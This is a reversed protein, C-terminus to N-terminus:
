WIGFVVADRLRLPLPRRRLQSLAQMKWSEFAELEQATLTHQSFKAKQALANLNRPPKKGLRASLRCVQRWRELARANADGRNWRVEDLRARLIGQGMLACLGLVCWAAGALWRPMERSAQESPQPQEPTREPTQVQQAPSTQAPESETPQRTAEAAGTNEQQAPTEASATLDAPTTELIVWANKATSYYEVWAHSNAEPVEVTKDAVCQAMYGTVYRAPVGAARLLVVTATAFHVCYGTDSDELFWRAFDTEDAPMRETNLDYRASSRVYDAIAVIDTQDATRDALIRKVLRRAWVGTSEPLQLYPQLDAVATAQDTLSYTYERVNGNALSGATLTVAEAPYYPVYRVNNRGRTKITITGGAQGGGFQESRGESASWGNGSYLDYDRGRLYILGSQSATVEMATYNWNKRPGQNSLQVDPTQETGPPTGDGEMTGVLEQFWSVLLDEYVQAQNVYGKQPVLLFLLALAAAVPLVAYATLRVGQERNKRRVHDTLLLMALSLMVLYLWITGPVTDTVVLCAGLPLVMAPVAVLAPKRRMVTWSVSLATLCGICALALDAKTGGYGKLLVTGWGYATDYRASIMRLLVEVQAWFRDTHGLYGCIVALMGATIVNGWPLRLVFSGWVAAAACTLVLAAFNRVGLQFATVLCGVGGIAAAWALLISVLIQWKCERKM